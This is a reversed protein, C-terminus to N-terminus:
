YFQKIKEILLEELMERKRAVIEQRSDKCQYRLLELGNLLPAFSETNKSFMNMVEEEDVKQLARTLYRYVLIDDDMMMCDHQRQSPHDIYCGNCNEKVLDMIIDAVVDVYAQILQRELENQRPTIEPVESMEPDQTELPSTFHHDEPDGFNALIDDDVERNRVYNSFASAIDDTLSCFLEGTELVEYEWLPLQDVQSTSFKRVITLRDM